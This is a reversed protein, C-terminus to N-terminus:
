AYRGGYLKVHQSPVDGTPKIFTRAKNVVMKAQAAEVLQMATFGGRRSADLLLLLCDAMEFVFNRAIYRLGDPGGEWDRFKEAEHRAEVAELELHKLVGIPGREKDTGFTAQSWEAQDTALNYLAQGLMIREAENM